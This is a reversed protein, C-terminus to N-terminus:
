STDATVKKAKPALWLLLGVSVILLGAEYPAWELPQPFNGFAHGMIAPLLSRTFYVSWAYVAGVLFVSALNYLAFFDASVYQLHVLAFIAASIIIAWFASFRKNLSGLFYGRFFIEEVIPILAFSGVAMFLWFEPTWQAGYIIDWIPPADGLPAINYHYWRPLIAVLHIPVAIAFGFLLLQPVSLSPADRSVPRALRYGRMRAIFWAAILLMGWKVGQSKGELLALVGWDPLSQLLAAEAAGAEVGVFPTLQRALLGFVILLIIPEIIVWLRSNLFRNM